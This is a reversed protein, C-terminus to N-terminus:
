AADEPEGASEARLVTWDAVEANAAWRGGKPRSGVTAMDLVGWALSSDAPHNSRVAVADGTLSVRIERVAM